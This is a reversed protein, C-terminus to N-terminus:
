WERGKLVIRMYLIIILNVIIIMLITMASALGINYNNLGEVYLNYSLTRTSTQPGGKTLVYVLDFSNFLRMFQLMIIVSAIPKVLPLYIHRIQQRFEAGDVEAAELLDGPIALIAAYLVIAFFPTWEWIDVLLVSSLATSSAGLLGEGPIPFHLLKLIWAILGGDQYYLYQFLFGAVVPAITTPLIIVARFVRTRLYDRSLILAIVFGLSFEIVVGFFSIFFTNRLSPWFPTLSFVNKFNGLGIFQMPKPSTELNWYYFANKWAFYLPYAILAVLLVLSPLMFLWPTRASRWKGSPKSVEHEHKELINILNM